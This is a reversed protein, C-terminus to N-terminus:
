RPVTPRRFGAIGGLRSVVGQVMDLHKLRSDSFGLYPDSETNM